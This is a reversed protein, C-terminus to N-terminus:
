SNFYQRAAKDLERNSSFTGLYTGSGGHGTYLHDKRTELDFFSWLFKGGSKAYHGKCGCECYKWDIREKRKERTKSM